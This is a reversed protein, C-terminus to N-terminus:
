GPFFVMEVLELISILKLTAMKEKAPVKEDKIVRIAKLFFVSKELHAPNIWRIKEDINLILFFIKPDAEIMTSRLYVYYWGYSVQGEFEIWVHEPVGETNQEFLTAVFKMDEEPCAKGAAKLLDILM